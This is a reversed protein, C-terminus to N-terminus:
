DAHEALWHSLWRTGFLVFMAVAMHLVTDWQGDFSAAILAFPVVGFRLVILGLLVAWGGWLIWTVGLGWLWVALGLVYSAILMALGVFGRTKRFLAFPLIVVLGAFVWVVAPWLFALVAGLFEIM